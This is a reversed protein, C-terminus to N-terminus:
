RLSVGDVAFVNVSDQSVMRALKTLLKSSSLSTREAGCFVTCVRPIVFACPGLCPFVCSLPGRSVIPRPGRECVHHLHPSDFEPGFCM